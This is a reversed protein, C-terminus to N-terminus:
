INLFIHLLSQGHNKLSFCHSVHTHKRFKRTHSISVVIFYCSFLREFFVSPCIMLFIGLATVKYWLDDFFFWSRKFFKGFHNWFKNYFANIVIIEFQRSLLFLYIGLLCFCNKIEPGTRTLCGIEMEM